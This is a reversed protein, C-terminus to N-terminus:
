KGGKRGRGGGGRGRGGKGNRGQSEQWEDSSDGKRGNHGNRGDADEAKWDGTRADTDGKWSNGGSPARKGRGKGSKGNTGELRNLDAFHEEMISTEEDM